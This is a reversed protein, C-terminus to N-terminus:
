SSSRWSCGRSRRTTERSRARHPSARSCSRARRGSCSSSSCRTGRRLSEARRRAAPDQRAPIRARDLRAAPRRRSRRRSRERARGGAPPCRHADCDRAGARAGDLDGNRRQLDGVVPQPSVDRRLGPREAAPVFLHVLPALDSAPSGPPLAEYAGGSFVILGYRDHSRSLSALTAGIRSYTDSGISASLDLVVLTDANAPLAVITQSNPNRLTFAGAVIAGVVVALLAARVLLTRHAVPAFDRADALPISSM